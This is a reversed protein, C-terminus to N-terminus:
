MVRIEKFVRLDRFELHVKVAKLDRYALRVKFELLDRIERTDRLGM